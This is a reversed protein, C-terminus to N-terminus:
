AKYNNKMAVMDNQKAPQLIEMDADNKLQIKTRLRIPEQNFYLETIPCFLIEKWPCNKAPDRLLHHVNLRSVPYARGVQMQRSLQEVQVQRSM